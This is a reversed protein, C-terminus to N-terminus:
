ITGTKWDQEPGPNNPDPLSLHAMLFCGSELEVSVLLDEGRAFELRFEGWENTVTQALPHGNRMLCVPLNEVQRDPHAADMLQGVMSVRGTGAAPQLCLDLSVTGDQFLYHNEGRGGDRVGQLAAWEFGTLRAVRATWAERSPFPLAGFLARACRLAANPPEFKGEGRALQLVTGWLNQIARCTPCGAGLHRDMAARAEASCRGCGFDAWEELSFHADSNNMTMEM